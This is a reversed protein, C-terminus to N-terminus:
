QTAPVSRIRLFRVSNGFTTPLPTTVAPLRVVGNDFWGSNGLDESVTAIIAPGERELELLEEDQETVGKVNVATEILAVMLTAFLTMAVVVELLSMATRSRM